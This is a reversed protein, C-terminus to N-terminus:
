HKKVATQKKGLERVYTVLENIQSKDLDAGFPPMNGKGKDIQVYFDADSKKQVAASRLDAAGLAKGVVTSGSGDDNHCRVCKEQFLKRSEESNGALATNPLSVMVFIAALLTVLAWRGQTGFSLGRIHGSTRNVMFAEM